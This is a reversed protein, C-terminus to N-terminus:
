LVIGLTLKDQYVDLMILVDHRDQSRIINAADEFKEQSQEYAYQQYKM